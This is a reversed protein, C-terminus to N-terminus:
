GKWLYGWDEDEDFGVAKDVTKIMARFIREVTSAIMRIQMSM